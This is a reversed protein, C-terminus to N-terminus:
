EGVGGGFSRVTIGASNTITASINYTGNSVVVINYTAINTSAYDVATQISTAATAWDTYPATPTVGPTGNTVVYVYPAAAWARGAMMGAALALVSINHTISLEPDM